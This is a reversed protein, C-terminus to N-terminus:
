KNRNQWTSWPQLLWTAPKGALDLLLFVVFIGAAAMLVGKVTLVSKIPAVLDSMTKLKLKERRPFRYGM